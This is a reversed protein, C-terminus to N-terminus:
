KPDIENNLISVMELLEKTWIFEFWLPNIVDISICLAYFFM